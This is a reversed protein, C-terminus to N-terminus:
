RQPSSRRISHSSSFGGVYPDLAVRLATALGVSLFALLYAGATGPRLAPVDIYILALLRQM